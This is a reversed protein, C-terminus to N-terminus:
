RSAAPDTANPGRPPRDPIHVRPPGSPTHVRPPESPMSVLKWVLYAVACAILLSSASFSVISPQQDPAPPDVLVHPSKHGLPVWKTTHPLQLPGSYTRDPGPPPPDPRGEGQRYTVKTYVVKVISMEANKQSPLPAFALRLTHEAKDDLGTISWILVPELEPHPVSLSATIDQTAENRGHTRSIGASSMSGPPPHLYAQEVDIVRCANNICVHQPAFPRTAYANPAGYLYVASGRFSLTIHPDEKARYRSLTSRYTLVSGVPGVKRWKWRKKPSYLINQDERGVTVNEFDAAVSEPSAYGKEEFYNISKFPFVTKAGTPMKTLRISVLTERSPDLGDNRWLLVPDHRTHYRQNAYITKLDVTECLGLDLRVCVFGLMNQNEIYASPAGYIAVAGTGRIRTVIGCQDQDQESHSRLEHWSIVTGDEATHVKAIWATGRISRELSALPSYSLLPHTDHMVVERYRWHDEEVPWPTPRESTYVAHSFKIGSYAQTKNVPNAVSIVIRHSHNQLKGRAFVVIPKDEDKSASYAEKTNVRYCQGISSLHYSEYLCIKYDPPFEALQSSSPGYVWVDTGQFDITVSALEHNLSSHFTVIKGQSHYVDPTWPKLWSDCVKWFLWSNVWRDCEISVDSYTVHALNTDHITTNIRYGATGWIWTAIMLVGWIIQSKLRSVLCFLFALASFPMVIFFILPLINIEGSDPRSRRPPPYPPRVPQPSPLRPLPGRAVWKTAHPPYLPGEYTNDPQPVPIDPRTQGTEYSVKTYVVKAISMEATDDSPLSALSLRLRHQKQDDLGTMSWILVPELEPHIPSLATANASNQGSHGNSDSTQSVSTSEVPGRPANLYAQEADVIHCVGDICVHQSAFPDKISSRPAGYVYVASGQFELEISPDETERYSSVTSRYTLVDDSPGVERWTWPDFWGTCWWLFWTVCRRGPHYAIAEHDHPVIVDELQGVPPDPSSYEQSEYYHIAKFPFVSMSSSQTKVLRISIHTKQFPDLADNQWMLVSEHHHEANLYAHKVDVIECPGSNIQVCVYSLYDVDTIHAKPIGYLAVAGAIISVDLGWKDKNWENRSKLERWSVIAGDEGAYTKASWGSALSPLCRETCPYRAIAGVPSYSVLPHTDHMVVERFRWHDEEVPWPTPREITYVAHSFEIGQYRSMEDRPDGVSIVVQHKHYQLGGKAFIVVPSDHASSSYAAAIDVRYRVPEFVMRHNEHLCIKYDGPIVTLQSRPPGYVWIASGEFEITM